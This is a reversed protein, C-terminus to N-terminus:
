LIGEFTLLCELKKACVKPISKESCGRLVMYIAILLKQSINNMLFSVIKGFNVQLVWVQIQQRFIKTIMHPLACLPLNSLKENQRLM